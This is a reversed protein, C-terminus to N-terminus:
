PARKDSIYIEGEGIYEDGNSMTVVVEATNFADILLDSTLAQLDELNFKLILNGLSDRTARINQVSEEGGNFYIHLPNEGKNAIFFSYRM